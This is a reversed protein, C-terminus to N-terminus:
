PRPARPEFTLVFTRPKLERARADVGSPFDVDRPELTVRVRRATEDDFRRRVVPPNTYLKLVERARGAVVVQVTRPPTSTLVLTSDVLALFPADFTVETPEEARVVFWLAIALVLAAIKTPLHATFVSRWTTAAPTM